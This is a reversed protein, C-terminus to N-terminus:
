WIKAWNSSFECVLYIKREFKKRWFKLLFHGNKWLFVGFFLLNTLIPWKLSSKQAYVLSNQILFTNTASFIHKEWKKPMKQAFIVNKRNQQRFDCSKKSKSGERAGLFINKSNKKNIGFKTTYLECIKIKLNIWAFVAMKNLKLTEVPIRFRLPTLNQCFAWKPSFYLLICWIVWSLDNYVHNKHMFWHIMNSLLTKLQCLM